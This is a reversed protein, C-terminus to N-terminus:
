RLFSAAPQFAAVIPEAPSVTAAWVGDFGSDALPAWKASISGIALLLQYVLKPFEAFLVNELFLNLGLEYFSDIQFTAFVSIALDDVGELAVDGGVLGRLLADYLLAGFGPRQARARSADPQVAADWRAPERGSIISEEKM